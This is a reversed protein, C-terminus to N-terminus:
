LVRLFVEKSLKMRTRDQKMFVKMTKELTWERLLHGAHYDGDLSESVTELHVSRSILRSLITLNLTVHFCLIPFIHQRQKSAKKNQKTKVFVRSIQCLEENLWIFTNGLIFLIKFTVSAAFSNYKPFLLLSLPDPLLHYSVTSSMVHSHFNLDLKHLQM